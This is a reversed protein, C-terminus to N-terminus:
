SRRGSQSFLIPTEQNSVIKVDTLASESFTCEVTVYSLNGYATAQYTGPKYKATDAFAAGGLGLASTAALGLGAAASGKLFDRRSIEHTM